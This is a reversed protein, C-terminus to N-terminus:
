YDGGFVIIQYGTNTAPVAHISALITYGPPIPRNIPIENFYTAATPHDLTQAAMSIENLLWTDAALTTGSIKSSLFLRIVTATNATSAATAFPSIRVSSIYAGNVGATFCKVMNTGITGAGDASTNATNSTNIQAATVNPVLTFIPQTNQPM